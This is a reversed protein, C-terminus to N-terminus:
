ALVKQLLTDIRKEYTHHEIAATYAREIIAQAASDDNLVDLVEGLNSFDRQLELYHEGPILLDNYRGPFLIQLTKTGMAEFNRPAAIRGSPRGGFVGEERLALVLRRFNEEPLRKIQANLFYRINEDADIRTAGAEHGILARCNNLFAAWGATNLREGVQIDTSLTSGAAALAGKFDDLLRDRDDHGVYPPYYDGRFGIAIEREAYPKEPRFTATTFGYPLSLVRGPWLPGYLLDADEQNLQSIITQAGLAGAVGTMERLSRFENGLFFVRPGRIMKLLGRVYQLRPNDALTAYTNHLFVVLDYTGINRGGGAIMQRGSQIDWVRCDLGPHSQFGLLWDEYYSYDQFARSRSTIVLCTTM